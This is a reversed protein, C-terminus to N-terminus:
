GIKPKSANQCPAWQPGYAAVLSAHTIFADLFQYM